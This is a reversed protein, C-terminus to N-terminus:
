LVNNIQEKIKELEDKMQIVMRQMESDNSKSGITNIERGIEQVIFGLKKGNSEPENMTELFFSCHNALRVKEETIDLKELYYILEQEFRNEDITSGANEALAQRLRLKIREIRQNEYPTLNESVYSILKIRSVIDVELAKGEQNRFTNLDTIAVQLASFITDWEATNLEQKEAKFVDPLRLLTDMVNPSMPIQYKKSVKKIEEFYTNILTANIISQQEETNTDIAIYLEVKGRVLERTLENRFELEKEKYISPTKLNLDLQKSNLSKIEITIRKNQFMCDAKGYGTM